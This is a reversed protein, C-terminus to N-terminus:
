RNAPLVETFSKLHESGDNATIAWCGPSDFDLGFIAFGYEAYSRKSFTSSPGDIRKGMVRLITRGTEVM